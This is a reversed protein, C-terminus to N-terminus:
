CTSVPTAKRIFRGIKRIARTGEPLLGAAAQFVHV